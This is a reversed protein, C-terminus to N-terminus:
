KPWQGNSETESESGLTSESGILFIFFTYVRVIRTHVMKLVTVINIKIINKCCIM